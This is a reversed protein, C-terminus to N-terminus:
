MLCIQSIKGLRNHRVYIEHGEIVETQCQLFLLPDCCIQRAYYYVSFPIEVKSLLAQTMGRLAPKNCFYMDRCIKVMETTLMVVSM